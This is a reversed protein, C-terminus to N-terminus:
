VLLNAARHPTALGIELELNRQHFREEVPKQVFQALSQREAVVVFLM